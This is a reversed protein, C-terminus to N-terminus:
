GCGRTQPNTSAMITKDEYAATPSFHMANRFGLLFILVGNLPFSHLLLFKLKYFLYQNLVCFDIFPNFKRKESYM